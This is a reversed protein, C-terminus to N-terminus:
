REKQNMERWPEDEDERRKRRGKQNVVRGPEDGQRIWKIQLTSRLWEQMPLSASPLLSLFAKM